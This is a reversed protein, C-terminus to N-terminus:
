ESFSLKYELYCINCEQIIICVGEDKKTLMLDSACHELLQLFYHLLLIFWITSSKGDLSTKWIDFAWEFKIQEFSLFPKNEFKSVSKLRLRLFHTM